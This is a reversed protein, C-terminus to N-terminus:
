QSLKVPRGAKLESARKPFPEGRKRELNVIESRLGAECLSALTLGPTWYVADRAQDFLEVSLHFTARMKRAKTQEKQRASSAPTEPVLADLPDSGFAPRRRTASSKM